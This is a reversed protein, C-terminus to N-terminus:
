HSPLARLRAAVAFHADAEARRGLLLLAKAWNEQINPLTPNLAAAHRFAEIAEAPRGSRALAIGLNNHM